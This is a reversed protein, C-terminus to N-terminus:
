RLNGKSAAKSCVFARQFSCTFDHWKGNVIEVCKEADNYIPQDRDWNEYSFPSGDIWGFDQNTASVLYGGIWPNDVRSTKVMEKVFTNVSISSITVLNSSVRQCDNQAENWSKQESFM